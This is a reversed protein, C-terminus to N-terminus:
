VEVYMNEAAYEVDSFPENQESLRVGEVRRIREMQEMYYEVAEKAGEFQKLRAPENWARLYVMNYDVYAVMAFDDNLPNLFTKQMCAHMDRGRIIKGSQKSEQKKKKGQEKAEKKGEMVDVAKAAREMAEFIDLQGKPLEQKTGVEERGKVMMVYVYFFAKPM